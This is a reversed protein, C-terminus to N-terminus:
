CGGVMDPASSSLNVASATGLGFKAEDLKNSLMILSYSQYAMVLIILALLFSFKKESIM